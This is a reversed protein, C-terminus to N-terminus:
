LSTRVALIKVTTVIRRERVKTAYSKEEREKDASLEERERDRDKEDLCPILGFQVCINCVPQFCDSGVHISTFIPKRGVQRIVVSKNELLDKLTWLTRGMFYWAWLAFSTPSQVNLFSSLHYGALCM